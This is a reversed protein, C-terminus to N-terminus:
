GYTARDERAKLILRELADYDMENTELHLVMTLCGGTANDTLGMFINNMIYNRAVEYSTNQLKAMERSLENVRSVMDEILEEGRM